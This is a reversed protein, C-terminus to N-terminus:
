FTATLRFPAGGPPAYAVINSAFQFKLILLPEPRASLPNSNNEPRINRRNADAPLLRRLLGWFMRAEKILNSGRGHM